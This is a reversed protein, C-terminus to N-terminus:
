FIEIRKTSVSEGISKNRNSKALQSIDMTESDDFGRYSGKTDVILSLEALRSQNYSKMTGDKSSATRKKNKALNVDMVAEDFLDKDSNNWVRLKPRKSTQVFNLVFFHFPRGNIKLFAFVGSVAFIVLASVAFLSFDFIKYLAAMLIFGAMLIVFQRTTIPGIIKDEVDIFQPVTFQQV